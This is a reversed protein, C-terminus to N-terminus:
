SGSEAPAKSSAGPEANALSQGDRIKSPAPEPTKASADASSPDAPAPQADAASAHTYEELAKAAPPELFVFEVRRNAARGDVTGNDELPRVHAYGAVRVRTEQVGNEVLFRMAATARAASLEWNSPFRRTQIPSNDTHGEIWIPLPVEECLDAILNMVGAAEPVLDDSGSAFLVQDRVRVVVGRDGVLVELKDGHESGKIIKNIRTVVDAKVLNVHPTSEQKSLEVVSTTLGMIEGSHEFQVGLADRVSGLAVRFNQVDMNAFSLLLVFFTLLLTSLDAFTAMWEAGGVAEEEPLDEDM